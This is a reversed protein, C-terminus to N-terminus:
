ELGIQNKNILKNDEFTFNASTGAKIGSCIYTTTTEEIKKSCGEGVIDTLEEYSIGIEVKNYIELDITVNGTNVEPELEKNNKCGTVLTLTIVLILIIKKM